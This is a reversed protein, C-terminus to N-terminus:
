SDKNRIATLNCQPDDSGAPLQPDLRHGDIGLGVATGRVQPKGILRHADSRRVAVLTVEIDRTDDAGRLDGVDVGDVGAVPEQGLVDVERLDAPVAADAEDARRDLGHPQQAILDLGAPERPLDLNGHDGSGFADNWVLGLGQLEGVLDPIRDDDLGHRASAPPAHADHVVIDAQTPCEVGCAHLRFGSEAFSADVDLLEDNLRSVDLDLHHGIPLAVRNMEILAVAGDLPTVLLHDLLRGAGRQLLTISLTQRVRRDPQDFLGVIHVGGGDFEEQVLVPLEIEDFHVRPDLDLM